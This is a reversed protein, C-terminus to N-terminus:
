QRLLPNSKAVDFSLFRRSHWSDFEPCSPSFQSAVETSHRRVEKDKSLNASITTAVQFNNSSHPEYQLKANQMKVIDSPLACKAKFFSNKLM